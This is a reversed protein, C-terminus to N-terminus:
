TRRGGRMTRPRSWTALGIGDIEVCLAAASCFFDLIYPGFPHQKRWHLDHLRRGRLREWLVVEPPTMERRLRRARKFALTTARM